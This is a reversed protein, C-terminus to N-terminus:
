GTKEPLPSGPHQSFPQEYRLRRAIDALIRQDDNAEMHSVKFPGNCVWIPVHGPPAANHSGVIEDNLRVYPVIEYSCSHANLREIFASDTSMDAVRRDFSKGHALKAGRHPTSITFLRAIRLRKRSRAGTAQDEDLSMAAYRAVLGGMSCAIVDVEMTWDADSGPFRKEITDVLRSACQDFTRAGVFHLTIIDSNPAVVEKIADAVGKAGLGPDYIGSLVILPRKLRKPNAAMDALSQEADAENVSFTPNIPQEAACSSLLAITMVMALSPRAM